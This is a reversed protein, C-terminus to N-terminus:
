KTIGRESSRIFDVIMRIEPTAPLEREIRDVAQTVNLDSRYLIFFAKKILVRQEITFNRRRLGIVNVGGVRPPNGAVKIFPPVDKPIRSGGGIIAHAGISVFQHVPVVGGVIAYDHVTVHGGLNVANALIVNNCIRCNHAIHVYAMLLNENGIVTSEGEGTASNVTVFERIINNDGIQVYSTAGRYKLDQPSTGISAGHFIRNNRGIRTYGDVLVSSGITTDEGITVHEGIVAYPGVTVRSGLEAGHDIIATEHIQVSM